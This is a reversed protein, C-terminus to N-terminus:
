EDVERPRNKIKELHKSYGEMVEEATIGAKHMLGLKAQLTDFFEEILNEKDKNRYATWFENEEELVKKIQDENSVQSLDINEFKIKM